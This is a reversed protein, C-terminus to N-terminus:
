HVEIGWSSWASLDCSMLDDADPPDVNSIPVVTAHVFAANESVDLIIHDRNANDRLFPIADKLEVWADFEKKSESATSLKNVLSAADPM